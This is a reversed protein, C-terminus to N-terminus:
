LQSSAIFKTLGFTIAMAMWGGILVRVCCRMLPTRGLVAGVGGFVMLAMSVAAAVVGM